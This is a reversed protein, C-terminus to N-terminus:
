FHFTKQIYKSETTNRFNIKSSTSLANIEKEDNGVDETEKKAEDKNIMSEVNEHFTPYINDFVTKIRKEEHRTTSTDHFYKPIGNNIEFMRIEEDNLYVVM